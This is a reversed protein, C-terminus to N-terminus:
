ETQGSIWGKMWAVRGPYNTDLKKDDGPFTFHASDGAYGTNEQMYVIAPLDYNFWQSLTRTREVVQDQSTSSPLENMLEAPNFEVGSGSVEKAGVEEPITVTDPVGTPGPGDSGVDDAKVGYFDNSFYAVPHWLARAVHWVWGMDFDWEQLKTYYNEGVANVNTEIGFTNLQDSMVQTPQAQGTQTRTLIDLSVTEGDPSTWTGNQQSYGAQEMYSAATETDTEVPYDILQDVFDSGLYQDHISSRLGTQVQTPEAIYRRAAATISPLDIASIIARRVSRNALHPNTWNLIFKQTRFWKIQQQNQLDEPYQQRQRERIWSVRDLENNTALSETNDGVPIIRTEPVNTRDAYPHDEYKSALTEASGFSDIQYLGNGLGEDVFQEVPVTMQLLEETVASRDESGSAEQYRTLYDNYIWRPTIQYKGVMAAKMLNPTVDAKFTLTVTSDDTLEVSEFQSAEPDQFREIEMQVYFDEATLDRGNWFTWGDPFTLALENGDATMDELYDSAITGDAYASAIPTTWYIHYTHGFNALNWPNMQVDTPTRGGVFDFRPEVLSGGDSGGDESGTGTTGTSDSGGGMTSQEGSSDDGNSM